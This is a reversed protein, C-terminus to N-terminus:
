KEKSLYYKLRASNTLIGDPNYFYGITPTANQHDTNDKLEHWEYPIGTLYIQGSLTILKGEYDEYPTSYSSYQQPSEYSFLTGTPIYFSFSNKIRDHYKQPLLTLLEKEEEPAFSLTKM